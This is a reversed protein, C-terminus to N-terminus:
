WGFAGYRGLFISNLSKRSWKALKIVGSGGISMEFDKAKVRFSWSFGMIDILLCM